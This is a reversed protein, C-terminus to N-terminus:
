EDDKLEVWVRCTKMEGRRRHNRYEWPSLCLAKIAESRTPRVTGTLPFWGERSWELRFVCWGEDLLVEKGGITRM